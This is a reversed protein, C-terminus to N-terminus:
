YWYNKELNFFLSNNKFLVTFHNESIMLIIGLINYKMQNLVFDNIFIDKLKKNYKKLNNIDM